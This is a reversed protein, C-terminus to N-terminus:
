ADVDSYRYRYVQRLRFLQKDEQKKRNHSLSYSNQDPLFFFCTQYSDQSPAVHHHKRGIVTCSGVYWVCVEADECTGRSPWGSGVRGRVQPRAMWPRDGELGEVPGFVAAGESDHECFGCMLLARECM